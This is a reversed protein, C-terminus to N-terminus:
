QLIEISWRNEYVAGPDLSLLGPQISLDEVVGQRSPLSSWPEICVYPADTKPMHWFGLYDMQPCSVRVGKKGDSVLSVTKAMDRLVIADEDFLDHHLPLVRGDQLEFPTERGTVFCDPSFEIRKPCADGAFELRYDEFAYGTELPVRFGPHGGIGFYMKKEDQNLVRFTIGICGGCLAYEIELVFAFPYQQRTKEDSQLRLKLFDPQAQVAELVSDKLFGHIDMEYLKGELSYRRGTLRAIYPFLNPGRDEWYRPDGQWLYQLGDRDQVSWLTGGQDSVAVTLLDNKLEYLM